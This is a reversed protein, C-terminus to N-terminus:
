RTHLCFRFQLIRTACTVGRLKCTYTCEPDSYCNYYVTLLAKTKNRTEHTKRLRRIRGDTERRHTYGAPYEM